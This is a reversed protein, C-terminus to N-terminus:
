DDMAISHVKSMGYEKLPEEWSWNSPDQYRMDLVGKVIQSQLRHLRMRYLTAFNVTLTEGKKYIIDSDFIEVARNHFPLNLIRELEADVIPGAQVQPPKNLANSPQGFNTPSSAPTPTRNLRQVKEEKSDSSQLWSHSPTATTKTYNGPLTKIELSDRISQPAPPTGNYHPNVNSAPQVVISSTSSRPAPPTESIQTRHFRDARISSSQSPSRSPQTTGNRAM